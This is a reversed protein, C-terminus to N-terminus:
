KDQKRRNKETDVNQGKSLGNDSKPSQNTQVPRHNRIPSSNVQLIVWGHLKFTSRLTTSPKLVKVYTPNLETHLAAEKQTVYVIM